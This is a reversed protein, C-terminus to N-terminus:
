NKRFIFFSVLMLNALLLMAGAQHLVGWFVPINGQCNIM